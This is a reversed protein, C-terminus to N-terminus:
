LLMLGMTKNLNLLHTSLADNRIAGAITLKADVLNKRALQLSLLKAYVESNRRNLFLARRYHDEAGDYDKSAELASGLLEYV